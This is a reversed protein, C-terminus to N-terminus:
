EKESEEMDKLEGVIEHGGVLKPNNKFFATNPYFICLKPDLSEHTLSDQKLKQQISKLLSSDIEVRLHRKLEEELSKIKNECLKVYVKNKKLDTSNKSAETEKQSLMKAILQIEEGELDTQIAKKETSPKFRYESRQSSEFDIGM